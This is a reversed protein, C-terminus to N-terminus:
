GAVAPRKIFFRQIIRNKVESYAVRKLKLVIKNDVNIFQFRILRYFFDIMIKFFNM